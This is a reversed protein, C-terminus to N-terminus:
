RRCVRRRLQTLGGLLLLCLSAPEPVLFPLIGAATPDAGIGYRLEDWSGWPAGGTISSNFQFLSVFNGAAFTVDSPSMWSDGTHPVMRRYNANLEAETIGGAKIADFDSANLMWLTCSNAQEVKSWKAIFLYTNGDHTPYSDPPSVSTSTWYQERTSVGIINAAPNGGNEKAGTWVSFRQPRIGASSAVGIDSDSYWRTSGASCKWLFSSWLVSGAAAGSAIPRNLYVSTYGTPVLYGGGDRNLSNWTDLAVANGSVILNSFTLGPVVRAGADGAATQQWAVSQFGTGGGTATLLNGQTYDFGDYVLLAGRAPLTAIWLLVLCATVARAAALAVTVSFGRSTARREGTKSAM